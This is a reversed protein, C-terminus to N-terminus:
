PLAGEIVQSQLHHAAMLCYDMSEHFESLQLIDLKRLSNSLSSASALREAENLGPRVENSLTMM